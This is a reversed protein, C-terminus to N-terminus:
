HFGPVSARFGFLLQPNYKQSSSSTEFEIMFSYPAMGLVQHTEQCSEEEDLFYLNCTRLKELQLRTNDKLVALRGTGLIPIGRRLSALPAGHWQLPQSLHATIDFPLRGTHLYPKTFIPLYLGGVADPSIVGQRVQHAKYM